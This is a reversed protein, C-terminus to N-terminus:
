MNLSHSKITLVLTNKKNKKNNISCTTHIRPTMNTDRKMDSWELTFNFHPVWLSLPVCM